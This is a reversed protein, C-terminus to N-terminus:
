ENGHGPPPLVEEQKVWAVTLEWGVALIIPGIFLGIIGYAIAGGLVGIFIVIMPTRLGHAMVIPSLVNNMLAVPILYATLALAIQPELAFWGWIIVPVLVLGPFQLIGFVLVALALLGAAPVGSAVFGAGSLIAQLLSIGVVGQSVNRVTTGALRIYEQGHEPLLRRSLKRAGSLLQPAPCFLFGAAILSLLFSPIGTAASQAMNRALTRLPALYPLAEMMASKLNTSGLVWIRHLPEGILPWTRVADPPPPITIAGSNMRESFSALSETMNIGLWVVPGTFVILSFLTLTAAAIRPRGGLRRSMWNFAPYLTVTLILAWLLITLFPRVLVFSWYALLGLLSLKVIREFFFDPPNPATPQNDDSLQQGDRIEGM